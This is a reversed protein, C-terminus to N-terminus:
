FPVSYVHLWNWWLCLHIVNWNCSRVMRRNRSSTRGVKHVHNRFLDRRGRGDCCFEHYWEKNRKFSDSFLIISIGTVATFKVSRHCDLTPLVTKNQKGKPRRIQWKKQVSRKFNTLLQVEQYL